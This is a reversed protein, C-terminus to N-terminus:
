HNWAGDPSDLCTSAASVDAKRDFAWAVLRANQAGELLNGVTVKNADFALKWGNFLFGNPQAVGKSDKLAGGILNQTLEFDALALWGQAFGNLMFSELGAGSHVFGCMYQNIQPKQLSTKPAENVLVRSSESANLTKTALETKCAVTRESFDDVRRQLITRYRKFREVRQRLSDESEEGVKPDERDTVRDLPEGWTMSGLGGYQKSALKLLCSKLEGYQGLNAQKRPGYLQDELVFVSTQLERLAESAQAKDFAPAALESPTVVPATNVTNASGCASLLGPLLIVLIKHKM